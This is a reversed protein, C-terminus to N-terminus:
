LTKTYSVTKKKQLILLCYGSIAPILINITFLIIASDFGAEPTFGTRGLFFVASLERIGLNGFFFPALVNVLMVATVAAIGATFSVTQFASVIIYFQLIYVGVFLLSLIFLKISAGRDFADLGSLFDSVVQKELFRWNRRRFWSTISEPYFVTRIVSALLLFYMGWLLAKIWINEELLDNVNYLIAPIGTLVIAIQSYIKDLANYGALRAKPTYPMFLARGFEGTRGPTILGISMGKLLSSFTLAPSVDTHRIKVLGHWKLWQMGLNPILLLLAAALHAPSVTQLASTINELDIYRILVVILVCSFLIKLWFQIKM